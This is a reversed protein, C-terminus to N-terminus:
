ILYTNLVHLSYTLEEKHYESEENIYTVTYKNIEYVAYLTTDETIEANYDFAVKKDKSFYKFTYGEKSPNESPGTATVFSIVNCLLYSIFLYVTVYIFSPM